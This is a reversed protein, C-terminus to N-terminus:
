YLDKMSKDSHISFYLLTSTCAGASYGGFKM